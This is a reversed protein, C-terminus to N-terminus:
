ADGAKELVSFTVTGNIWGERIDGSVKGTKYAAQFLIDGQAGCPTEFQVFIDVWEKCNRCEYPMYGREIRYCGKDCISTEDHDFDQIVHLFDEDPHPTMAPIIDYEPDIDGSCYPCPEDM